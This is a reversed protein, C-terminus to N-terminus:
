SSIHFVEIEMKQVRIVGMDSFTLEEERVNIQGLVMEEGGSTDISQEDYRGRYQQIENESYGSNSERDEVESQFGNESYGVNRRGVESEYESYGTNGRGVESEYRDKKRFM